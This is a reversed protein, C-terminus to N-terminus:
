VAIPEQFITNLEDIILERGVLLHISIDLKIITTLKNLTSKYKFVLVVKNNEDDYLVKFCFPMEYSVAYDSVFVAGRKGGRGINESKLYGKFAYLDGNMILEALFSPENNAKKIPTFSLLKIHTDQSINPDLVFPFTIMRDGFDVDRLLVSSSPSKITWRDNESLDNLGSIYPSKKRFRQYVWDKLSTEYSAPVDYIRTRNKTNVNISEIDVLIKQYLREHASDVNILEDLLFQIKNQSVMSVDDTQGSHLTLIDLIERQKTVIISASHESEDLLAELEAIIVQYEPKFEHEKYYISRGAKNLQDISPTQMEKNIEEM